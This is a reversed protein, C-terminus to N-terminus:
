NKKTAFCRKYEAHLIKGLEYYPITCSAILEEGDVQDYTTGNQYAQYALGENIMSVLAIRIARIKPEGLNMKPTGDSEYIQKGEKDKVLSLGLLAMEFANVSEYEDQIHELANLDCLLPYKVTGIKITNLKMTRRFLYLAPLM